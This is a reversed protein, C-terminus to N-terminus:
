LADISFIGTPKLIKYNSFSQNAELGEGKLVETPTEIVVFKDTFVLQKAPDWYLEETSLKKGELLNSVQVNGKVKYLQKAKDFHGYNAVLESSIKRDEGFFKIEVGIPFVRDGNEYEEQLPANLRIKLEASDSFHTEANKLIVLPGKYEIFKELDQKKTTCGQLVSYAFCLMFFRGTFVATKKISLYLNNGRGSRPIRM